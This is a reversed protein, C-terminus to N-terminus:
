GLQDMTRSAVSYIIKKIDPDVPRMCQSIAMPDIVPPEPEGVVKLPFYERNEHYTQRTQHLEDTVSDAIKHKIPENLHHVFLKGHNIFWNLRLTEEKAVSEKWFDAERVNMVKRSEKTDM